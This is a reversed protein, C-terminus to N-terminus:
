WDGGDWGRGVNITWVQNDYLPMQNWSEDHTDGDMISIGGSHLYVSYGLERIENAIKKQRREISELKKVVEDPLEDRYQM